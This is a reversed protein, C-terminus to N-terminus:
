SEKLREEKITELQITKVATLTSRYKMYWTLAKDKLTSELKAIKSAEYTIKNMSWILNNTFWYQEIEDKGIRDFM